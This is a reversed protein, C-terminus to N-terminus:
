GWAGIKSALEPGSPSHAQGLAVIRIKKVLLSPCTALALFQTETLKKLSLIFMHGFNRQDFERSFPFVWFPNSSAVALPEPTLAVGGQADEEADPLPPHM